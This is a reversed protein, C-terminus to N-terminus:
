NQIAIQPWRLFTEYYISTTISENVNTSTAANSINITYTSGAKTISTITTSGPIGTGTITQNPYVGPISGVATIATSLNTTTGYVQNNAATVTIGSNTSTCNASLTVTTGQVDTIWTGNTIGTGSVYQGIVIGKLANLTVATLINSGNTNSAVFTFSLPCSWMNQIGMSGALPAAPQNVQGNVATTNVPKTQLNITAINCISTGARQAWIGYNGATPFTYNWQNQAQPAAAPDGVRGGLFFTGVSAGFPHVGAGTQSQVALYSNDWVLVDGQNLNFSTAASLILFVFESEADGAVVDGPLFSPLPTQGAAGYPGEPTFVRAGLGEFQKFSITV